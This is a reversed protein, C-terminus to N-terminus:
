MNPNKAMSLPVILLSPRTPPPMDSHQHDKLIGIGLSWGTQFVAKNQHTQILIYFELNRWCWTQRYAVMSGAM